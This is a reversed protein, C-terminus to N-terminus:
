VAMGIIRAEFVLRDGVVGQTDYIMRRTRAEVEKGLIYLRDGPVVTGRFRTNEIGAFGIFAPAQEGITMRCMWTGLQAAAEVMLVGPFLPRGPVHGRVWFEDSKVERVAVAVREEKSWHVIGNLMEMEFRQPLHRRLHEQDFVVAAGQFRSPDVLLPPPM